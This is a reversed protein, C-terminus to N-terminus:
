EEKMTPTVPRLIIKYPPQPNVGTLPFAIIEFTTGTTIGFPVRIELPITFRGRSDTKMYATLIGM